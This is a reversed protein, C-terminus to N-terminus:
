AELLGTDMLAKYYVMLHPAGSSFAKNSSSATGSIVCHYSASKGGGGKPMKQMIERFTPLAYELYKK